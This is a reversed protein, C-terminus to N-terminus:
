EAHIDALIQHLMVNSKGTGTPGLIVTHELSDKPPISLKTRGDLTVAFTRDQTKVPNKYWAPPLMPKPHLGPVGPLDEEGAPLLLFHALEKVSLRLPFFWCASANNLCVPDEPKASLRVGASELVRLASLLSATQGQNGGGLRVTCAFGHHTIKEKVAARSEPSALGVHGLAIDLWSAHPDPLKQPMPSPTFARGLVIQLVLGGSQHMAALAARIATEGIDTRLALTPKSIKLLAATACPRREDKLESFQIQGHAQMAEQVKRAYQKEVCLLYRVGNKNGRAEWILPGRTGIGALQVLMVQLTELTFPRQFKVDLWLPEKFRRELM